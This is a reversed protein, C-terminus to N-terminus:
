KSSWLRIEIVRDLFSIDIIQSDEIGIMESFDLSLQAQMLSSPWNSRDKIPTRDLINFIIAFSCTLM